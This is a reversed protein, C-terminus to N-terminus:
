SNSELDDWDTGSGPNQHHHDQTQSGQSMKPSLDELSTPSQETASHEQWIKFITFAAIAGFIWLTPNAWNSSLQSTQIQTPKPNTLIKKTVPAGLVSISLFSVLMFSAIAKM